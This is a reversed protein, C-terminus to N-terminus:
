KILNGPRTNSRERRSIMRNPLPCGQKPNSTSALALILSSAKPGDPYLRPASPLQAPPRISPSTRRKLPGNPLYPTVFAALGGLWRGGPLLIWRWM